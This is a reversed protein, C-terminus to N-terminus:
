EGEDIGNLWQKLDDIQSKSLEEGDYLATMFKKVSGDYLTDLITNAKQKEYDAVSMGASYFMQRGRNKCNVFGKESLKILFTSLTPRKWAKDRKNNFFDSLWTFSVPESQEWLVEMIEVETPTLDKFVNM